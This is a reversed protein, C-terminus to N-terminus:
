RSIQYRAESVVPILPCRHDPRFDKICVFTPNRKAAVKINPLFAPARIVQESVPVKRTNGAWQESSRLDARYSWNSGIRQTQLSSVPVKKQPKHYSQKRGPKQGYSYCSLGVNVHTSSRWDQRLQDLLINKVAIPFSAQLFHFILTHCCIFPIQTRPSTWLLAGPDRSRIGTSPFAEKVILSHILSSSITIWGIGVYSHHACIGAM